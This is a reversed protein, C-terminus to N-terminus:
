GVASTEGVLGRTRGHRAHACPPQGRHPYNLNPPRHTQPLPASSAADGFRATARASRAGKGENGRGLCVQSGQRQYVALCPLNSPRGTSKVQYEVGAWAALRSM